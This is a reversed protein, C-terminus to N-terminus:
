GNPAKVLKRRLYPRWGLIEFMKHKGFHAADSTSASILPTVFIQCAASPRLAPLGANSPSCVLRDRVMSCITSRVQRALSIAGRIAVGWLWVAAHKLEGTKPDRYTPRYVAM